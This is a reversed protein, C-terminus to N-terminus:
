SNIWTAYNLAVKSTFTTTPNSVSSDIYTDLLYFEYSINVGTGGLLGSDFKYKYISYDSDLTKCDSTEPVDIAYNYVTNDVKFENYTLIPPKWRYARADWYKGFEEDIDFVDETINGAILYNDKVTMTKPNFVIGGVSAFEAQTLTDLSVNGNDIVEISDGKIREEFILNIIPSGKQAYFISWVKISDFRLDIGNINIKVAKGTNTEIDDGRYTNTTTDTVPTSVLHILPTTASMLTEAGGYNYLQYGYQIMGAKLSGGALTEVYRPAKAVVDPLLETYALPTGLSDPDLINLHRLTTGNTFYVKGFTPNNYKSLVEGTRYTCPFDLLEVYVLHKNPVLWGDDLNTITNNEFDYDLKWIQGSRGSTITTFLILSDRMQCYNVITPYETSGPALSDITAGTVTINNGINYDALLIIKLEVRNNKIYIKGTAILTSIGSVALLAKYLADCWTEDALKTTVTTGLTDYVETVTNWLKITVSSGNIINTIKASRNLRPVKFLLTNGLDNTISGTSLGEETVVRINLASYYSEKERKVPSTDQSMGKTFGLEIM